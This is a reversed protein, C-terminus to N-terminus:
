EKAMTIAAQYGSNMAWTLDSLPAAAPGRLGARNFGQANDGAAYLGSIVTKDKRLVHLDEDTVIGGYTGESFGQGYFAYFPGNDLAILYERPKDFKLDKGFNCFENYSEVEKILAQSDVGFTNELKVALEEITEGKLLAVGTDLDKKLDDRYNEFFPRDFEDPPNELLRSNFMEIMQETMIAFAIGNNERLHPANASMCEPTFGYRNEAIFRSGKTSVIVVENEQFYRYGCYSFPHHQPCQMPVRIDEYAIDAGMAEAMLIGDGSTTPVSQRIYHGKFFAPAVKKMLNPNFSLGGAALLIKRCSIELPGGADEAEIGCIIGHSDTIIKKATCGSIIDIGLSNCQQEMKEIVYTGMWGPGIAQDTCKKNKTRAPFAIRHTGPVASADQPGIESGTLTFYDEWGGFGCLWDFFEGTSYVMKRVFSEDFAGNSMEMARLVVDERADYDGADQQMKSYIAGFGHALNACGGIKKAKELVIVKKGTTQAYKVAAVMGSGGGGVIVAECQQRLLGHRKPKKERDDFVACVPCIGACHGCEICISQDIFYNIGRFQIAQVPCELECSHCKACLGSISYAM